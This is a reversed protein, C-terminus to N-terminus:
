AFEFLEYINQTEKKKGLYSNQLNKNVICYEERVIIKM